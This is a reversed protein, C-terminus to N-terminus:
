THYSPQHAFVVRQGATQKVTLVIVQTEGSVPSYRRVVVSGFAVDAIILSRWFTDPQM